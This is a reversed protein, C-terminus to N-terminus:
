KKKKGTITSVRIAEHMPIAITVAFFTSGDRAPDGARALQFSIYTETGWEGFGDFSVRIKVGSFTYQLAGEAGSLARLYNGPPSLLGHASRGCECSFIEGGPTSEQTPGCSCEDGLQATRCRMCCGGLRGSRIDQSRPLAIRGHDARENRLERPHALLVSNQSGGLFQRLGIKINQEIRIGAPIPVTLKGKPGEVQLQDGIKLKVGSPVPIPKKGVRSM